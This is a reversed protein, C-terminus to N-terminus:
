ESRFVPIWKQEAILTGGTIRDSPHLTVREREELGSLVIANRSDRAAPMIRRLSAQEDQGAAFVTWDEGQYGFDLGDLINM